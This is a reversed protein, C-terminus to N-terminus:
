KICVTYDSFIINFKKTIMNTVQTVIRIIDKRQRFLQPIKFKLNLFALKNKYYLLAFKILIFM